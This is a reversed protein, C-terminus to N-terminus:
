EPPILPKDPPLSREVKEACWVKNKFHFICYGAVVLSGGLSVIDVLITIVRGRCNLDDWGATVTAPYLLSGLVGVVLLAKLWPGLGARLARSEFSAVIAVGVLISSILGAYGAIDSAVVM